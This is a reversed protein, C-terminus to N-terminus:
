IQNRKKPGATNNSKQKLYWNKFHEAFKIGNPYSLNAAKRFAPLAAVLVSKDVKLIRAINECNVSNPFDKFYSELLNQNEDTRTPMPEPEAKEVPMEKAEPQNGSSASAHWRKNASERNKSSKSEWKRLDRKLTQKIPEFAIATIRDPPTPNQDNVYRLYHKLLVGAEQDTLEEVTHIIDCYLLVSKKNEAM